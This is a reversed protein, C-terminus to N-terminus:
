EGKDHKQYFIRFLHRIIIIARITSVLNVLHHYSSLYLYLIIIGNQFQIKTNDNSM